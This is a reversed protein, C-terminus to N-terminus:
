PLLVTPSHAHPMLLQPPAQGTVSVTWVDTGGGTGSDAPLMYAIRDDDLWEVQDDVNRTEALPTDRLTSLDLVHLRWLTTTGPAKYAIRTNDPSISPCEVGSRLVRATRANVDGEVLYNTGGTRLTAYFRNSDRAFTVGWFNFDVAKFPAGDRTVAFEELDAIITGAEADVLRTRTSFGKANYSDGSVFVTISARTGDPSVRTRSPAGVLPLSRRIEFDPGFIHATYTTIAKRDAALCVGTGSAFHVRECRLSARYREPAISGAAALALYGNSQDFASSAFLLGERGDLVDLSEAVREAAPSTAAAAASRLRARTVYIVAIAVFCLCFAAFLVRRWPTTAVTSM